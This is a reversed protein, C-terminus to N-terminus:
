EAYKSRMNFAKAFKNHYEEALEKMICVFSDMENGITCLVRSTDLLVQSFDHMAFWYESVLLGNVKILDAAIPNKWFDVAYSNFKGVEGRHSIASFGSTPILSDDLIMSKHFPQIIDQQFVSLNEKKLGTLNFVSSQIRENDKLGLEFFAVMLKNIETNFQDVKDQVVKIMPKLTIHDYNKKESFSLPLKKRTFLNAFINVLEEKLADKNQGYKVVLKHLTQSQIIHTLVINGPEFDSLASVLPAFQTINGEADILNVKRLIEISCAALAKFQNRLVDVDGSKRTYTLFFNQLLNCVAKIRLKKPTENKVVNKDKKKSFVKSTDEDEMNIFNILRLLMTTTFPVNGRLTSLSATLLRRIKSTPVSMFIVSGADDFGRRGARGSMQRFQLPNLMPTDIGFIVTKCPMNLGLALTSTSFVVGIYGARFLSEVAGREAPNLGEHHVGIGKEILKAIMQSQSRENTSRLKSLMTNYLEEDGERVQLNYRKLVKKLKVRQISFPDADDNVEPAPKGGEEVGHDKLKKEKRKKEAEARKEKDKIFKDERGFDFNRKFEDSKMFAAERENLCNFLRMALLECVERDDNFCIAPIKENKKLTDILPVINHVAEKIMNFPKSRKEFEQHVNSRLQGLINNFKVEDGILLHMFRKKLGDELSRLKNRNLWLKNENKKAGFFRVPELTEMTEKDFESMVNYLQLVQMATLQQDDPIGFMELKVKEFIGYPMFQVLINEDPPGNDSWHEMHANPDNFRVKELGVNLTPPGTELKQIMLELESYRESYEILVVDRAKEGELTKAQELCKMWNHLIDVNAITASLALFPCRILSLLTEWKRGDAIINREDTPASICHVEDFIVYKIRSVIAQIEPNSLLLIEEFCEPITVLVQCSNVRDSFDKMLVGFLSKGGSLTKNRFRAYVSGCFQNMLAKSPSVYVVMDDDSSRLIKEIAYYSVFTKGASTPAIILASNKSDVADLMDRQWKDPAFGTVRNDKEPESLVDIYRGAYQLQYYILDIDLTLAAQQRKNKVKDSFGLLAWYEDIKEKQKDDFNEYHQSFCTKLHGVLELASHRRENVDTSANDMYLAARKQAIEFACIAKTEALELKRYVAELTKIQNAKVQLAFQIKGKDEEIDKKLKLIRQNEIIKDKNSMASKAGPKGGKKPKGDKGEKGKIEKKAPEEKVASLPTRTFDVLLENKRGELSDSFNQYWKYLNQKQRNRKRIAWATMNRDEHKIINEEIPKFKWKKTEVFYQANDVDASRKAGNELANDIKDAFENLFGDFVTKNFGILSCSRLLPENSDNAPAELLVEETDVALSAGLQCKIHLEGFAAQFRYPLIDKKNNIASYYAQILRGDWLDGVSFALVGPKTQRLITACETLLIKRDKILSPSPNFTADEVSYSREIGKKGSVLAYLLVASALADFNESVGKPDKRKVECIVHAWFRGIDNAAEGCLEVLEVAKAKDKGWIAYCEDLFNPFKIPCPCFRYGMVSSINIKFGSLNVVPISSYILHCAIVKFKELLDIQGPAVKKSPDAISMLMFSPTLNKLYDGWDPGLPSAHIDLHKAFSSNELYSIMWKYYFNLITDQEFIPALDTFVILKFKAGLDVLNNLFREIQETLIITQGGLTWNHYNHATFELLLSETSILFIEVDAFEGVINTYYCPIADMMDSIKTEQIVYIEGINSAEFDEDNDSDSNEERAEDNEIVKNNQDIVKVDESPTTM